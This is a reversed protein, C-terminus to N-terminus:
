EKGLIDVGSGLVEEYLELTDRIGRDLSLDREFIERGRKGMREALSRDGLVKVLAESLQRVNGPEVLYGNVGPWIQVMIGGVASGVVPKGFAMGEAVAMGFGEMHSPLVVVDCAEFAQMLESRHIHGTFIVQNELNLNQVLERLAVDYRGRDEAKLVERTMSGNGVFVCKVGPLASVVKPLAQILHDQAKLPDIRAVCLIMRDDAGIGYKERFRNEKPKHTVVFPWICAVKDWELGSAIAASVYPRTSFVVRDYEEAYDMVFRRWIFPARETFPIHWTLIKPIDLDKLLHGQLLVQFDHVHLLDFRETETLERVKEEFWKNVQFYEHFGYRDRHVLEEECASRLHFVKLFLEKFRTYGRIIEPSPAEGPVRYVKLSEVVEEAPATLPRLHLITLEHGLEHLRRGLWLLYYSVGGAHPYFSQSVSLVKL